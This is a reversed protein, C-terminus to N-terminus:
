MKSSFINFHQCKLFTITKITFDDDPTNLLIVVIAHRTLFERGIISKYIAIIRTFLVRM